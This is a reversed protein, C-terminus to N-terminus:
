QILDAGPGGCDRRDHVGAHDGCYLECSKHHQFGGWDAGASGEGALPLQTLCARGHRCDRSLPVLQAGPVARPDLGERRSSRLGYKWIRGPPNGSVTPTYPAGSQAFLIPAITWGSLIWRMAGSSHDFYGPQWVVSGTFRHRIDFNSPGRDFALNYPNSPSNGSLTPSTGQGDDTSDALTCSAQVQLGQTMRRNLQLVGANYHSSIRTFIQTMQNFNPNPRPGKFFPVTVSNGNLSGGSITYTINTPAPLNIDVATPLFHGLSGIYSISVVTNAAIQHEMVLDYEQVMPNRLDGPFFIINPKGIGGTLATLINPYVPLGTTGPTTPFLTAQVQANPVGTNSIANFITGYAFGVRPGLDRKDSNFQSTAPALPNAIQASPLQEFEYRVDLNLTLRPRIRWPDQVFGAYEM